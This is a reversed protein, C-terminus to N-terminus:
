VSLAETPIRDKGERCASVLNLSNASLELYVYIITPGAHYLYCPSSAEFINRDKERLAVVAGRTFHKAM